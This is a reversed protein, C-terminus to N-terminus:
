HWPLPSPNILPKTFSSIAPHPTLSRPSPYRSFPPHRAAMTDASSVASASRSVFSLRPSLSRTPEGVFSPCDTVFMDSHKSSYNYSGEKQGPLTTNSFTLHMM